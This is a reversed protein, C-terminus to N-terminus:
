SYLDDDGNDGPPNAPANPGSGQQSNSQGPFRLSFNLVM